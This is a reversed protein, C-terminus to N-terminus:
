ANRSNMLKLFFHREAFVGVIGRPMFMFVAMLVLAPLIYYGQQIFTRGIEEMVFLVVAGIIPGLLTGSGGLTVMVLMEFSVAVSFAGEPNVYSSQYAYYGGAVGTLFASVSFGLVRYLTVNIGVARAAMPNDRIAVFALGIRSKVLLHAFIASLFAILLVGYYFTEIHYPSPPPVIVGLAGQTIPSLINKFILFLLSSLGLTGIAFYFGRLRLFPIGILAAFGAAVLGGLLINLPAFRLIDYHELLAVTYSAVGFFSVHGFSLDGLYGGQINWAIALTLYMLLTISYQTIGPALFPMPILVLVPLGYCLLSKKRSDM